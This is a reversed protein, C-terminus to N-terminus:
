EPPACERQASPLESDPGARATHPSRHPCRMGRSTLECRMGRSTLKCRMGTSTLPWRHARCLLFRRPDLSWCPRSPPLPPLPLSDRICM